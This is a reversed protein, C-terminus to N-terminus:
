NASPIVMRIFIKEPRTGTVVAEVSSTGVTPTDENVEFTVVTGNIDTDDDFNFTELDTSWEYVAGASESVPDANQPHTFQLISIADSGNFDNTVLGVSSVSPDTGFFNELGNSQGDNDPDDNFGNQSGVGPFDLIWGEFTGDLPSPTVINDYGVTSGAAWLPIVKLGTAGNGVFVEFTYTEWTSGDGILAPVIDGSDGDLVGDVWYEVKFGGISDGSFIKMDMKFEYLGDETIGFKEIPIINGNNSVLGAFGATNSMEAYGGPNGGTSPYDLTTVQGEEVFFFWNSGGAEFDANRVPNTPVPDTLYTINDFAVTSEPGWIPVVKIATAEDPIAIQYSYTEWTSGDGILPIRLDGSDGLPIIGQFEVKLGGIESGSLLKMDQQFIYTEGATLGLGELPMATGGNSVLGGFDMMDDSLEEDNTMVAHAGPNGGTTPYTFSTHAFGFGAWKTSGQDFNSNPIETIDPVEVEITSFTINDYGISSGAGWLPVVKVAVATEPITIQFEYTEWTSGDGILAPFIDSTSDNIVNNEPDLDNFFDVKFGGLKTGSFIKMDQKFIYSEGAILGLDSLSIKSGDNTVLVAWGGGASNDILGCGGPNGGTAPFDFVFTGGGSNTEWAVGDAAEFDADIIQSSSILPAAALAIALSYIPIRKM